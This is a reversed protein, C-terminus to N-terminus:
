LSISRVVRALVVEVTLRRPVRVLKVVACVAGNVIFGEAQAPALEHLLLLTVPGSTVFPGSCESEAYSQTTESCVPQRCIGLLNFVVTFHNYHLITYWFYTVSFYM